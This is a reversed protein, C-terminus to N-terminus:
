EILRHNTIQTHQFIIEEKNSATFDIEKDRRALIQATLREYKLLDEM